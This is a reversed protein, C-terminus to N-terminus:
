DRTTGLGIMTGFMVRHTLRSTTTKQVAGAFLLHSKRTTTEVSERQTSSRAPLYTTAPENDASSALIRQSSTKTHRESTLSTCRPRSESACARVAPHGDGQDKAPAGESHAFCIGHPVAGAQFPRLMGGRTADTTLKHCLSPAQTSLVADLYLVHM